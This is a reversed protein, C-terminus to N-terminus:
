TAGAPVAIALCGVIALAFLSLRTRRRRHLYRM